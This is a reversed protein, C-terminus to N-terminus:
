EHSDESFRVPTSAGQRGFLHNAAARGQRNAPGALPVPVATRAVADVVQIADGVGYISPVSARLHEDVLLAGRVGLGLGAEAALSTQPRVGVTILVLDAPSQATNLLLSERAAIEGGPSYPLGCNAFSVYADRELVVIEADESLRRGCAAFSMGGVVAVKM